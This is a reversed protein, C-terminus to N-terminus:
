RVRLRSKGADSLAFCDAPLCEFLAGSGWLINNWKVQTVQYLELLRYIIVDHAMNSKWSELSYLFSNQTLWTKFLSIMNQRDNQDRKSWFQGVKRPTVHNMQFASSKPITRHPIELVPPWERQWLLQNSQLICYVLEFTGGGYHISNM